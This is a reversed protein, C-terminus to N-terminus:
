RALEKGPKGNAQETNHEGYLRIQRQNDLAALRADVREKRFHSGYVGRERIREYSAIIHALAETDDNNEWFRARHAAAEFFDAHAHDMGTRAHTRIFESLEMGEDFSIRDMFLRHKQFYHFIWEREEETLTAVAADNAYLDRMMTHVDDALDDDGDDWYPMLLIHDDACRVQVSPIQSNQLLYRLVQLSAYPHTMSIDTAFHALELHDQEKVLSAIDLRNTNIKPELGAYSRLSAVM